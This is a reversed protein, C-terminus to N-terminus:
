EAPKETQSSRSRRQNSQREAEDAKLWQPLSEAILERLGFCRIGQTALERALDAPPSTFVRMLVGIEGKLQGRLRVATALNGIDDDTCLLILPEGPGHCADLARRMVVESRADGCVGVVVGEPLDDLAPHTALRVDAEHDVVVIWPRRSVEPWREVATQVVMAGFRGCGVVVLDREAPDFHQDMASLTETLLRKASAYYTNVLRANGPNFLKQVGKALGEDAVLALMQLQRSRTEAQAVSCISLNLLDNGTAALLSSARQVGAAELTGAPDSALDHRIVPVKRGHVLVFDPVDADRDIIVLDTDPHNEILVEALRRGHNGFGCLICHNKLKRAAAGPGTLARRVRKVGEALVSAAALPALFHVAWVAAIWFAHGDRPFGPSSLVFLTLAHYAAEPWSFPDTAGAVTVQTLAVVSFVYVTALSLAQWRRVFWRYVDM